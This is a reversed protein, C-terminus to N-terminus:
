SALVLGSFELRFQTWWNGETEGMNLSVTGYYPTPLQHYDPLVVTILASPTYLDLGLQDLLERAEAYDLAEAILTATAGGVNRGIGDSTFDVQFKVQKEIRLPIALPELGTLTHGQKVYIM